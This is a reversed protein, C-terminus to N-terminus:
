VGRVARVEEWLWERAMRSEITGTASLLHVFVVEKAQGPRWCRGVAQEMTASRGEKSPGVVPALFLVHNAAQLNWGAADASDVKLVLVAGSAASQFGGIATVVRSSVSKKGGASDDGFGDYCAVGAARCAAVFVDKMGKFQAFALVKEGNDIAANVLALATRM